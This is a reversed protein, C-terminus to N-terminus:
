FKFFLPTLVLVVTSYIVTIVIGTKVFDRVTYGGVSAVMLNTQYGYPSLFSASAGYAVAFVFPTPDVGLSVASSYGVPFALAAAANNTVVETLLLTLLYVGVFSGYVGYGGFVVTIAESIYGATGSDILVKAIGLSAGVIMVIDYPFRRKIETANMYKQFMYFLLLLLLAKVLSMVGATALIIAAFFSMVALLSDKKDLHGNGESESIVYFNQAINDRKSFDAGTSLILKDGSKLVTEGIKRINESGRKIAIIAADFKSRFNAEKVKKDALNSEPTIIVEVINGTPVTHEITSVGHFKKLIEIHKVDGAFVLIDGSQLIESPAVPSMLREGRQIEVLFLYELNRLGVEKISKGILISEELVKTEILYEQSVDKECEIEPLLKSVLVLAIIGFVTIFFGVYFFDFIGLPPLGNQLAFGNVILNTSTGVLTMTGGFIAAYSLPILLKSPKHYANNKVTGILSAVVATNNLFASFFSTFFGLKLISLKYNPGILYRSINKVVVTKELAISVLLLLVLVVLSSNVYNLLWNDLSLFDFLYFFVVTGSFLM